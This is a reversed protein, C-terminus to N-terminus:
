YLYDLADSFGTDPFKYPQRKYVDLHTYSVPFVSPGWAAGALAGFIPGLGAINLLQILFIRATGMPVYDAGDEMAIAPTRRDDPGFVKEAFKGYVFFGGVLLFLCIFFSIM